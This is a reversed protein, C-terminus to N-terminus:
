TVYATIKERRKKIILVYSKISVQMVAETDTNEFMLLCDSSNLRAPDNYSLCAYNCRLM